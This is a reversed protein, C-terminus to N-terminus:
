QRGAPTIGRGGRTQRASPGCSLRRGVVQENAAAPDDVAGAIRPEVGVDGHLVAADGRDPREAVAFAVRIISAVPLITVGPKMSRCECAVAAEAVISSRCLGFMTACPM